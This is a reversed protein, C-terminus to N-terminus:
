RTMFLAETELDETYPHAKIFDQCESLPMKVLIYEENEEDYSAVVATEGRVQILRQLTDTTYSHSVKKGDFNFM